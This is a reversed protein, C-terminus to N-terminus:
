KSAVLNARCATSGWLRRSTDIHPFRSALAATAKGILDNAELESDVMLASCSAKALCMDVESGDSLLASTVGNWVRVEKVVVADGVDRMGSFLTAYTDNGRMIYSVKFKDRVEAPEGQDDTFVPSYYKVSLDFIEMTDPLVPAVLLPLPTLAVSTKLVRGDLSSMTADSVHQEKALEAGWVSVGVMAAFFAVGLLIAAFAAQKWKNKSDDAKQLDSIIAKVEAVSYTGDGDLDYKRLRQELPSLFGKHDTQTPPSSSPDGM